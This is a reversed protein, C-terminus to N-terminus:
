IYIEGESRQGEEEELSDHGGGGERWLEQVGDAAKEGDWIEDGDCAGAVGEVGDGVTGQVPVDGDGGCGVVERDEIGEGSAWVGGAMNSSEGDRDVVFLRVEGVIKERACELLHGFEGGESEEEMGIGTPCEVRVCAIQAQCREGGGKGEVRAEDAEETAGRGDDVKLDACSRIWVIM